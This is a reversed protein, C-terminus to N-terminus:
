TTTEGAGEGSSDTTKSVGSSPVIGEAERSGEHAGDPRGLIGLLKPTGNESAGEAEGLANVM